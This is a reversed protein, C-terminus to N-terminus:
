SNFNWWKRRQLFYQVRAANESTQRINFWRENVFFKRKHIYYFRVFLDRTNLEINSNSFLSRRLTFIWSKSFFCCGNYSFNHEYYDSVWHVRCFIDFPFRASHLPLENPLSFFFYKKEDNYQYCRYQWLAVLFFFFFFWLEWRHPLFRIQAFFRYISNM